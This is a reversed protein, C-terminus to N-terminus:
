PVPAAVVGIGLGFVGTGAGLAFLCVTLLLLTTPAIDM